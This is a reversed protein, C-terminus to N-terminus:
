VIFVCDRRYIKTQFRLLQFSFSFDERRLLNGSIRTVILRIEPGSETTVHKWGESRYEERM